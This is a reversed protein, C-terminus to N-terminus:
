KLVSKLSDWMELLWIKNIIGQASMGHKVAVRNLNTMDSDITVINNLGTIQMDFGHEQLIRRAAKTSHAGPYSFVTVKRKGLQKDIIDQAGSASRIIIEKTLTDFYEHRLSHNQIEVLGSKEMEKSEDWTICPNMTTNKGIFDPIIFIAAPTKLKKLIPYAYIYTSQYGDDMTIIFPKPPLKERGKLYNYLNTFTIATYGKDLLGKIQNEFEIPTVTTSLYKEDVNEAFNHYILIPIFVDHKNKIFLVTFILVITVLM